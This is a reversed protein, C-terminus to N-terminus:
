GAAAATAAYRELVARWAGPSSLTEYAGEWGEGHREFGSHVLEVRTADPGDASFRVDVRSARNRDPEFKWQPDIQWALAVHDPPDWAIVRGWECESGDVCREYFRGDLRTELVAESMDAAGIHHERPWWADFGSTFVHFARDIPVAVTIAQRVVAEIQQTV